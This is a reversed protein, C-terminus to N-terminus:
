IYIRDASYTVSIGINTFNLIFCLSKSNRLTESDRDDAISVLSQIMGVGYRLMDYMELFGCLNPSKM